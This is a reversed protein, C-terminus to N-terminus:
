INIIIVKMKIIFRLGNERNVKSWDDAYYDYRNFQVKIQDLPYSLVGFRREEFSITPYKALEAIKEPFLEPYREPFLKTYIVPVGYCKLKPKTRKKTRKNLYRQLISDGREYVSRYWKKYQRHLKDPAEEDLEADVYSEITTTLIPNPVEGQTFCGKEETESNKEFSEASEEGLNTSKLSSSKFNISKLNKTKLNTSKLSGSKMECGSKSPLELFFVKEDQKDKENNANLGKGFYDRKKPYIKEIQNPKEIEIDATDNLTSLLAEYSKSDKMENVIGKTNHFTSKNNTVESTENTSFFKTSKSTNQQCKDKEQRVEIKNEFKNKEQSEIKEESERFTKSVKFAFKIEDNSVDRKFTSPKKSVIQTNVSKVRKSVDNQVKQSKQTAKIPVVKSFNNSEVIKLVNGKKSLLNLDTIVMRKNKPVVDQIIILQGDKRLIPKSVFKKKQVSNQVVSPKLITDEKRKSLQKFAPNMRNDCLSKSDQNTSKLNENLVKVESISKTKLDQKQTSKLNQNLSKVEPISTTKLDQIQTTKLAQNQTKLNQNLTSNSDQNQTTRSDRNQTTKSDQTKLDQNQTTKLDQNPTSKLDKVLNITSNFDKEKYSLQHQNLTTKLGSPTENKASLAELAKIIQETTLVPTERIVIENRVKESNESLVSDETNLDRSSDNNLLPKLSPETLHTARSFSPSAFQPRWVSLNPQSTIAEIQHTTSVCTESLCFDKKEQEIVKSNTSSKQQTKSNQDIKSSSSQNSSQLSGLIGEILLDFHGPSSAKKGDVTSCHTASDRVNIPDQKSDSSKVPSCIVSAQKANALLQDFRSPEKKSLEERLKRSFYSHDM